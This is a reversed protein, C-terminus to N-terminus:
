MGVARFIHVVARQARDLIRALVGTSRELHFALDLGLIHDLLHIAVRRGTAHGLPAFIVYRMENMGASVAQWSM